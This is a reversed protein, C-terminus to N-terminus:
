AAKGSSKKGTEARAESVAEEFAEGAEKSEKGTEGLHMAKGSNCCQAAESQTLGTVVDGLKHRKRQAIVGKLVGISYKKAKQQKNATQM